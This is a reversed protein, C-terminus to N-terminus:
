RDHGVGVGLTDNQGFLQVAATDFGHFVIDLKVYLVAIDPVVIDLIPVPVKLPYGTGPVFNLRVRCFLIQINGLGANRQTVVSLHEIKIGVVTAIFNTHRRVAVPQIRSPTVRLLAHLNRIRGGVHQQQRNSRFRRQCFDLVSAEVDTVIHFAVAHIGPSVPVDHQRPHFGAVFAIQSRCGILLQVACGNNRLTNVFVGLPGEHLLLSVPIVNFGRVSLIQVQGFITSIEGCLRLAPEHSGVTGAAVLNHHSRLGVSPGIIQDVLLSSPPMAACEGAVAGLAIPINVQAKVAVCFRLPTRCNSGANDQVRLRLLRQCGFGIGISPQLGHGIDFVFIPCDSSLVSLSYNWGECERLSFLGVPVVNLVFVIIVQFNFLIAHRQARRGRFYENLFHIAGEAHRITFGVAHVDHREIPVFRNRTIGLIVAM